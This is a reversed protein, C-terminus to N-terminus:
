AAAATGDEVAGAYGTEGTIKMDNVSGYSILTL